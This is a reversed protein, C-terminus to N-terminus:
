IYMEWTMLLLSKQFATKGYLAIVSKIVNKCPFVKECLAKEYLTKQVISESLANKVSHKESHRSINRGKPTLKWLCVFDCRTRSVNKLEQLGNNFKPNGHLRRLRNRIQLENNKVANRLASVTMFTLWAHPHDEAMIRRRPSHPKASLTKVVGLSTFRCQACHFLMPCLSRCQACHFTRCAAYFFGRSRNYKRM